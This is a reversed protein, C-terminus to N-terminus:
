ASEWEGPRAVDPNDDDQPGSYATILADVYAFLWAPIVPAPKWNM